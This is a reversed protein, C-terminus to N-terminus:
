HDCVHSRKGALGTLRLDQSDQERRAREQAIDEHYFRSSSHQWRDAEQSGGPLLPDGGSRVDNPENHLGGRQVRRIDPPLIKHLHLRTYTSETMPITAQGPVLFVESCKTLKLDPYLYLGNCYAIYLKNLFLYSPLISVWLYTILLNEATAM